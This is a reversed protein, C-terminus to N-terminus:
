WLNLKWEDFQIETILNESNGEGAEYVRTGGMETFLTNFFRGIANFHEYATDGLGFVSYQLHGEGFM